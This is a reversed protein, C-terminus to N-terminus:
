NFEQQAIRIVSGTNTGGLIEMDEKTGGVVATFGAEGKSKVSKEMQGRSKRGLLWRDLENDNNIVREEPKDELEHIQIYFDCWQKLEFLFISSGEASLSENKLRFRADTTKAIARLINNNIKNLSQYYLTILSNTTLGSDNLFADYSEWYKTGDQRCIGSFALYDRKEVNLKSELSYICFSSKLDEIEEIKINLVKIENEIRKVDSPLPLKPILARKSDITKQIKQLELEKKDDWLGKTIASKLFDYETDLGGKLESKVKLVHANALFIDHSCIHKALLLDDGFVFPSFGNLVNHYQVEIYPADM